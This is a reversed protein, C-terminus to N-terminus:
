AANGRLQPYMYCKLMDLYTTHTQRLLSYIASWVTMYCGIGSMSKQVTVYLMNRYLTLTNYNGLDKFQSQKGRCCMFSFMIKQLFYDNDSLQHMSIGLQVLVYRDDVMIDCCSTYPCIYVGQTTNVPHMQLQYAVGQTFKLPTCHSETWAFEM